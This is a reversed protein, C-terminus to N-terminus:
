EQGARGRTKSCAQRKDGKRTERIEQGKQERGKGTRGQQGKGTQEWQQRRGAMAEALMAM